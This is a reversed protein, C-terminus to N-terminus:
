SYELLFRAHRKFLDVDLTETFVDACRAGFEISETRVMGDEIANRIIHNTPDLKVHATSKFCIDTIIKTTDKNGELIDAMDNPTDNFEKAECFFRLADVMEAWAVHKSEVTAAMPRHVEACDFVM